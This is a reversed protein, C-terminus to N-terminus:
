RGLQSALSAMEIAANAAEEGKNGLKMGAREIAEEQTACTLVGWTIPIGTRTSIDVLAAAVFNSLQQAHTTAGQLICGVCVIADAGSKSISLAAVPIEWTGPVWVVEASGGHMRFAREAGAVLEKVVFENWRAAVIYFKGGSADLQGEIM